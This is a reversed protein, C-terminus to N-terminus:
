YERILSTKTKMKQQQRFSMVAKIVTEKCKIM